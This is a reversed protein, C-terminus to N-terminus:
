HPRRAADLVTSVAKDPATVNFRMWPSPTQHPSFLAGPAVLVGQQRCVVALENTDCGMNVWLFLGDADAAFIEIGAEDLRQRAAARREALRERLRRTHDAFRGEVLLKHVLRENLEPTTFGTLVKADVIKGALDANCALFGVRVNSALVKSFGGAYIVRDLGDRAALRRVATAGLDAYVDDEFIHFGQAQAISLIAAQTQLSLSMGTPNHTASSLIFLKPREQRAIQELLALELGQPGVPVGVVRAGHAAAIGLAGFWFPDLCLVTEGPAVLARLVLDLGQTIGTTLVIQDAGAVIDLDALRAQLVARLPEFGHGEGPRLWRAPAERGLARLAAGLRAGDLWSAPLVGVGPGYAEAGQLMHHLLWSFDITPPARAPAAAPEVRPRVYFGSGRRAELYGEAVLREYAEVATFPSVGRSAALARVSPVRMGPRYVQGHIRSLTWQICDDVRTQDSASRAPAM